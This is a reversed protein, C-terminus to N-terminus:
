KSKVKKELRSKLDIIFESSPNNKYAINIIALAEEYLKLNAFCTAIYIRADEHTNDLELASSFYMLAVTYNESEDYNVGINYLLDVNNPDIKLGLNYIELGKEFEKKASYGNGLNIYAANYSSDINLAKEAWLIQNDYEGLLGFIGSISNYIEVANPYKKIFKLDYEIVNKLEGKNELEISELFMKHFNSDLLYEKNVKKTQTYLDFTFFLFIFILINIKNIM